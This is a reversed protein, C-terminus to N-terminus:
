EVSSEGLRRPLSSSPRGRIHWSNFVKVTGLLFKMSCYLLDFCGDGGCGVRTSTFSDLGSMLMLNSCGSGRELKTGCEM